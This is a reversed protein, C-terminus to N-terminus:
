VPDGNRPAEADAQLKDFLTQWYEVKEPEMEFRDELLSLAEEKRGALLLDRIDLSVMENYSLKDLDWEPDYGKKVPPEPPPESIKPVAPTPVVGPVYGAQRRRKAEGM